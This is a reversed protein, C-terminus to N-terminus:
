SNQGTSQDRSRRTGTKEQSTDRSGYVPLRALSVRYGDQWSTKQIDIGTGRQRKEQEVNKHTSTKRTTTRTM